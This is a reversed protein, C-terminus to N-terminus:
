RQHQHLEYAMHLAKSSPRPTLAKCVILVAPTGKDGYGHWVTLTLVRKFPLRSVCQLQEMGGILCTAKSACPSNLVGKDVTPQAVDYEKCCGLSCHRM